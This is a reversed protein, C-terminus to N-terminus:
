GGDTLSNHTKRLITKSLELFEKTKETSLSESSMNQSLIVVKGDKLFEMASQRHKEVLEFLGLIKKIEERSISYKPASKTIFTQMNTKTNKSLEVRKYLYDHQLIANICFAIAKKLEEIVRLLIKKDKILPYSVYILHDSARIIKQAEQLYEIFKEM